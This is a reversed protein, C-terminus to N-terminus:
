FRKKMIIKELIEYLKDNSFEFSNGNKLNVLYYDKKEISQIEVLDINFYVEKYRIYDLGRGIRLMENIDDNVYDLFLLRKSTLAITTNKQNEEQKVLTNDFIDIIEEGNMLNFNYM